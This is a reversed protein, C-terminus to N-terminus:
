ACKRSILDELSLIEFRTRRLNSQRTRAAAMRFYGSAWTCFDREPEYHAFDRWMAFMAEGEIDGADTEDDALEIAYARLRKGHIRWLRDFLDRLARWDQFTAM